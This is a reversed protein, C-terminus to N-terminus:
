HIGGRSRSVRAIIADCKALASHKPLNTMSTAFRVRRSAFAVLGNPVSAKLGLVGLPEFVQAVFETDRLLAHPLELHPDLLAQLAEELSLQALIHDHFRKM